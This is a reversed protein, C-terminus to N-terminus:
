QEHFSEEFIDVESLKESGTIDSIENTKHGHISKRKNGNRQRVFAVDGLFAMSHHYNEDLLKPFYFLSFHELKTEHSIGPVNLAAHILEDYLNCM